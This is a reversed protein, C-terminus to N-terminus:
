VVKGSNMLLWGILAILAIAALVTLSVLAIARFGTDTQNSNYRAYM